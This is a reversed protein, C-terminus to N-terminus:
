CGSNYKISSYFPKRTEKLVVSYIACCSTSSEAQSVLNTYNFNRSMAVRWRPKPESCRLQTESLAESCVRIKAASTTCHKRNTKYNNPGIDDLYVFYSMRKRCQCGDGQKSSVWRFCCFHMTNTFLKINFKVFWVEMFSVTIGTLSDSIIFHYGLGCETTIRRFNSPHNLTLKFKIHNQLM